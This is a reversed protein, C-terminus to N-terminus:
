NSGSAEPNHVLHKTGTVPDEVEQPRCWCDKAQTHERLPQTPEPGPILTDYIM